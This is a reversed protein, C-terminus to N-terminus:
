SGRCCRSTRACRTGRSSRRFISTGCRRTATSSSRRVDGLVRARALRCRRLRAGVVAALMAARTSTSRSRSGGTSAVHVARARVGPLSRRLRRRRVHGGPAPGTVVHRRQRRRRRAAGAALRDGLHVLPLRVRPPGQRVRGRPAVLRPPRARRPRRLAARARAGGDGLEAELRALLTPTTTTSCTRTTPNRSPLRTPPRSTPLRRTPRREEPETGTVDTM